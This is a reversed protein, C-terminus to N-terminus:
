REKKRKETYTHYVCSFLISLAPIIPTRVPKTYTTRAFILNKTNTRHKNPPFLTIIQTSKFIIPM